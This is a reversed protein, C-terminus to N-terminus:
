SCWYKAGTVFKQSQQAQVQFEGQSRLKGIEIGMTRFHNWSLNWNRRNEYPLPSCNVYQPWHLLQVQFSQSTHLLASSFQHELSSGWLSGFNLYWETRLPNEKHSIKHKISLDRTSRLIYFDGLLHTILKRIVQSNTLAYYSVCM